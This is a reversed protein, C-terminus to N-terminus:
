HETQAPNCLGENIVNGQASLLFSVIILLLPCRNMPVTIGLMDKRMIGQAGTIIINCFEELSRTEMGAGNSFIHSQSNGIFIVRFLYGASVPHSM